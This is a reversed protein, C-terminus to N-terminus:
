YKTKLKQMNLIVNVVMLTHKTKYSEEVCELFKDICDKCKAINSLSGPTLRLKLKHSTKGDIIEESKKDYPTM